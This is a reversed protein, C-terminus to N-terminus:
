YNVTDFSGTVIVYAPENLDEPLSVSSYKFMENLDPFSLSTDGGWSDKAKVYDFAWMINFTDLMIGFKNYVAVKYKPRKGVKKDKNRLTIIVKNKGFELRKILSDIRPTEGDEIEFVGEKVKETLDVEKFPSESASGISLFSILATIVFILRKM